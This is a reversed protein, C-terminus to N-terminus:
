NVSNILLKKHAKEGYKEMSDRSFCFNMKYFLLRM